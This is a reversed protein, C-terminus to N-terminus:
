RKISFFKRKIRYIYLHFILLLYRLIERWDLKSKGYHRPGFHIPVELVKRNPAKVLIELLIKYGILHWETIEEVVERKLAFCGSMPDKIKTFPEALKTAVKSITNRKQGWEKDIEGLFRSGVVIDAGKEFMSLMTPLINTDHQGDGDMCILIDERATLFGTIVASALGMKKPRRILNVPYNKSLKIAEEWTKDPSNDDVVWITYNIGQLAKAISEIVAPLNGRENYTPLIVACNSIAM